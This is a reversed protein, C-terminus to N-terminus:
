RGRQRAKRERVLIYYTSGVIISTGTLFAITIEEGFVVVGAAISLPVAFYHLPALTSAPALKHSLAMLWQQLSALLGCAVLIAFEAPISPWDVDSTACWLSFVAAGFINYILTSKIPPASAGLRQRFILMLAAFFPAALAYAVGTQFWGELDPRLVVLAGILGAAVAIWRRLGIVDGLLLPALVTIFAPLTQAIATAKTIEIKSVALLWCTLGTLGFVSRWVLARVNQVVLVTRGHQWLGFVLLPPLSFLYRFLLFVAVSVTDSVLKASSAIVISLAIESLLAFSGLPM